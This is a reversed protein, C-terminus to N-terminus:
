KKGKKKEKLVIVGKDDFTYHELPREPEFDVIDIIEIGNQKAFERRHEIPADCEAADEIIQREGDQAFLIVRM